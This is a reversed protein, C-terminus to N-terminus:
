EPLTTTNNMWTNLYRAAKQVGNLDPIALEKSPPQRLMQEMLKSLAAPKLDDDRLIRM